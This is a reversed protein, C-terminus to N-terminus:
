AGLGQPIHTPSDVRAPRTLDVPPVHTRLTRPHLVACNYPARPRVASSSSTLLCLTWQAASARRVQGQPPPPASCTGHLFATHSFPPRSRSHLASVAPFPYTRRVPWGTDMEMENFVFLPYASTVSRSRSRMTPMSCRPAHGTSKLPTPTRQRTLGTHHLPLILAWPPLSYHTRRV